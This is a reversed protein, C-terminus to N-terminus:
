IPITAILDILGGLNEQPLELRAYRNKEIFGKLKPNEREVAELADDIFRGISKLRYIHKEFEVRHQKEREAQNEIGPFTQTVRQRCKTLLVEIENDSLPIGTIPDLLAGTALKANDQLTKWRAFQPVWFINKEIYYDREELEIRLAEAYEESDTGGYDEPDLFDDNGPDRLAAEIEEQRMRFSDSVYKLFILGLVAHKYVAADLAARLRDAANWLKKDLDNLFQQSDDM